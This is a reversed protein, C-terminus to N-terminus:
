NTRKGILIKALQGEGGVAVVVNNKVAIEGYAGDFGTEDIFSKWSVGNFHLIEGFAGSIFIDHLGNGRVGTTSYNTIDLPENKWSSESLLIKEYIGDGVVYYHREPIFWINYLEWQIPSTSIQAATNGDIKYIGRRLPFNRSCVALIEQKGAINAAGYIDSFPLDTGSEIKTWQDNQYHIITGNGGVFYLNTSDYGWIKNSFGAYEGRFEQFKTGDWHQVTGATFWIDNENFAFISPIPTFGVTDGTSNPYLVRVSFTIRKLEWENGNWHAANYTTYGNESTDAIKIEGVAWINNEDIIAADYLASFGANGDGLTWTQWTFNHSTTDLTSIAIKSSLEQNGIGSVQYSYTKNPLLSDDMITQPSSSLTFRQVEIDDRNLIFESGTEGTVKIWAETCSTDEASIELKQKEPETPSCSLSLLIALILLYIIIMKTKM